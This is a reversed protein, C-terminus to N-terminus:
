RFLDPDEQQVVQEYQALLFDMVVRYIPVQQLDKHILLWMENEHDVDQDLEVLKEDHHGIPRPLMGVGLGAQITATLTKLNDCRLVPTVRPLHRDLWAHPPFHAAENEMFIWDLQDLRLSRDRMAKHYAASVYLSYAFSGLKRAFLSGETPRGVRVAIDAERRALNVLRVGTIIQIRIGPWEERFESLAPIIMWSAIEELTAVKVTGELRENKAMVARSLRIAHREMCQADKVFSEAEPRMRLGRPDRDFLRLGLQDELGDLRRIVTSQNVRLVKAAESASGARAIELFFRWDDWNV